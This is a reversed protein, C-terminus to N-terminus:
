LPAAPSRIAANKFSDCMERSSASRSRASSSSISTYRTPFMQSNKYWVSFTESTAASSNSTLHSSCSLSGGRQCYPTHTISASRTSSGAAVDLPSTGDSASHSSVALLAASICRAEAYEPANSTM